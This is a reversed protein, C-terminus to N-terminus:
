TSALTLPLIESPHIEVFQEILLSSSSSRNTMGVSEDGGFESLFNSQTNM